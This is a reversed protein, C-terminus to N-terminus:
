ISLISWRTSCKRRRGSMARAPVASLAPFPLTRPPKYDLFAIVAVSHGKADRKMTM